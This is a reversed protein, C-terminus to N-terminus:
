CPVYLNFKLILYILYGILILLNPTHKCFNLNLVEHFWVTAVSLKISFKPTSFSDRSQVSKNHWLGQRKFIGAISCIASRLINLHATPTCKIDLQTYKVLNLHASFRVWSWKIHTITHQWMRVWFVLGPTMQLLYDRLQHTLVTCVVLNTTDTKVYNESSTVTIVSFLPFDNMCTIWHAFLKGKFCSTWVLIVLYM